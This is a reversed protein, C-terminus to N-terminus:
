NLNASGGLKIRIAQARHLARMYPAERQSKYALRYCHRCAFIAGGLYLIAVRRGCGTTPCLFWTRTGGYNCSTREIRVAYELDTWSNEYSDREVTRVEWNGTERQRSCIPSGVMASPM